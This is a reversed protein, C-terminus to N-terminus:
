DFFAAAREGIMVATANPCRRVVRPMISTDVVRLNAVGHVRCRQDVVSNERATGMRCSSAMHVSTGVYTRLHEDLRADSELVEDSIGTRRAGIERYPGSAVLRAALRVGERLRRLDEPDQLYNYDLRPAADPDDSTLHIQGRSKGQMLIVAISLDWQTILQAKLKAWSLQRVGLVLARLQDFLSATQLMAANLPVVAPMLMMDSHDDSGPTTYHLGVETMAKKTPDVRMRRDGPVQLTLHVTCHDTFNRGVHPSEHLVPVGVAGLEDAPGVGSLMLLQPSKVAGASLVVEDAHIEFSEGAQQVLVGVARDGSILVKRVTTDPLVHLNARGVIPDLYALASNWRVGDVNNLPLPGVGISGPANVDADRAFGAEACATAFAASVPSWSERPIRSVPIPGDKGHHNGGLDLDRELKRYYPQVEDYSWADAGATV